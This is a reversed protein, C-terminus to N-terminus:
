QEEIEVIDTHLIRETLVADPKNQYAIAKNNPVFVWETISKEKQDFIEKIIVGYKKENSKLKIKVAKNCYNWYIDYPNIQEKAPTLDFGFLELVHMVKDLQLSEKGQELDRIFRLGVGAKKALDEQTFAHKKRHYKVFSSLNNM